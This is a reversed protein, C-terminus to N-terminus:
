SWPCYHNWFVFLGSRLFPKSVHRRLYSQTETTETEIWIGEWWKDSARKLLRDRGTKNQFRWRKSAGPIIWHGAHHKTIVIESAVLGFNNAIILVSKLLIKPISSKWILIHHVVIKDQINCFFQTMMWATTQGYNSIDSPVYNLDKKTQKKQRRKPLSTRVLICFNM